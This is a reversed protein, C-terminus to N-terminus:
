QRIEVDAEDLQVEVANRLWVPDFSAKVGAEVEFTVTIREAKDSLNQLVRLVTFIQVKDAKLRLRYCRCDAPKEEKCLGFDALVQSQPTVSVQVTGM